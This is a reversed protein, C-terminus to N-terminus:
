PPDSKGGFWPIRPRRRPENLVIMKGIQRESGVVLETYYVGSPVRKGASDRGNWYAVMRGPQAVPFGLLTIRPGHEPVLVAVGVVQRLVNYIRLSIIVPDSGTFLSEELEFPIWTDPDAPNPANQELTFGRGKDLAPAGRTAQARLREPLAWALALLTLLVLEV